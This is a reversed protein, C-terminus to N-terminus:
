VWHEKLVKDVTPIKSYFDNYTGLQHQKYKGHFYVIAATDMLKPNALIHVKYSYILGPYYHDIRPCENNANFCKRMLVMESPVNWPPLLCNEMVWDQKTMWINWIQESIASSVISIGNCVDNPFFPDSILGVDEDWDMIQDINNCIITDLGTTMRRQGAPVIDPRYMEILVTWGATTNNDQILFPVQRVPETIDDYHRDVLVVLEFARTTNRALGRYLKNVWEGDYVGTTHPIGFRKGDFLPVVVSLMESRVAM